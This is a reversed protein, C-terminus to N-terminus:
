SGKPQNAIRASAQRHLYDEVTTVTPFAGRHTRTGTERQWSLNPRVLRPATKVKRDPSQDIVAGAEIANALRTGAAHKGIGLLDGLRRTSIAVADDEDGTLENQITARLNAVAARWLLRRQAASIPAYGAQVAFVGFGESTDTQDRGKKTKRFNMLAKAFIVKQQNPLQNAYEQRYAAIRRTRGRTRRDQELEQAVAKRVDAVADTDGHVLEVLGGGLAAIAVGYDYLTAIVRGSTDHQRQARHLLACTQTLALVHPFDRRIRIAQRRVLDAVVPAFPVIVERPGLALWRQLARWQGIEKDSVSNYSNGAVRQAQNYLIRKTQDESEDTVTVLLRTSLEEEVNERATTMLLAVPGEKVLEVGEPKRGNSHVTQYVLRGSSVLERLFMAMEDGGPRASVLAAAEQIILIVHRLDRKTYFLAKPSSATFLYYDDSNLLTIINDIVINKGSSASGKRLLRCPQNLLRSVAVLFTCLVGSRDGAVGMRAVTDFLRSLLAPDIALVSCEDWAAAMEEAVAAPDVQDDHDDAQLRTKVILTQVRKKLQGQVTRKGVGFRGVIEAIEAEIVLLDDLGEGIREALANIAVRAGDVSPSTSVGNGHGILDTAPSGNTQAEVGNAGTLPAAM